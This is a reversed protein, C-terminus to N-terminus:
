VTSLTDVRRGPLVGRAIVERDARYRQDSVHDLSARREAAIDLRPAGRGLQAERADPYGSDVFHDADARVPGLLQEVCFDLAEDIQPRLLLARVHRAELLDDVLRDVLHDEALSCELRLRKGRVDGLPAARLDGNCRTVRLV